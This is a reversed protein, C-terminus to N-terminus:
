GGAVPPIFVVADGPILRRSWDSFETNVAVKLQERSLTFGYRATLEAFLDAPTAASTELTEDSRGAQERMLAFYQIKLQMSNVGAHSELATQAEIYEEPTNINDLARSDRPEILSAPYRRLFKRPCHGGGGHYASLAAAAAPEWIACLPEPLGDHASRFATALVSPDREKLLQEVAADSLFPLDCAIVLWAAEPYAAMASRIGLIPGGAEGLGALDVILPKASRTPEAAQSASVSVFVRAVHGTALDFARDLQTKGQYLLAAKDRRMRSSAGGALILGYVPAGISNV